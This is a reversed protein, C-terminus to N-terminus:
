WMVCSQMTAGVLKETCMLKFNQLSTVIMDYLLMRIERQSSTEEKGSVPHTRIKQKCCPCKYGQTKAKACVLCPSRTGDAKKNRCGVCTHTRGSYKRPDQICKCLASGARYTLGCWLCGFITHQDHVSVKYESPNFSKYDCCSKPCIKVSM